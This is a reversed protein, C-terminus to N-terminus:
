IQRYSVVAPRVCQEQSQVLLRWNAVSLWVEQYEFRLWLPSPCTTEFSSTKVVRGLLGVCDSLRGQEHYVELVSLRLKVHEFTNKKYSILRKFITKTNQTDHWVKMNPVNWDVPQWAIISTLTSFSKSDLVVSTTYSVQRLVDYWACMRTCTSIWRCQKHWHVVLLLYESLILCCCVHCWWYIVM